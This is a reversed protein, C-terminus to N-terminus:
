PAICYGLLCIEGSMMCFEENGWDWCGNSDQVCEYAYYLMTCTRDGSSCQNDCQCSGNSCIKDSFTCDTGNVWGYCGTATIQCNQVLNGSCRTQGATCANTCQDACVATGSSENCIQSTLSCDTGNSYVMCGYSNASCTQIFTGNCQTDTLGCENSCLCQGGSCYQGQTTCDVDEQWDLCGSTGMTCIHLMDGLCMGENPTECADTCPATCTATTEEAFCVQGSASCDTTDSWQMCGNAGSACTQAINGLCRSAGQFCADTCTDVCEATNSSDDCVKSSNTCDGTEVWQFCSNSGQQCQEIANGNCRSFTQYNCQDVCSGTCGNLDFHCAADCLLTGEGANLTSCSMGGLNIGDCHEATDINGNGCLEAPDCDEICNVSNEGAECSGNGCVAESPCDAPCTTPDEPATCIGDGCSAESAGKACSGAMLMILVALSFPLIQRLKM